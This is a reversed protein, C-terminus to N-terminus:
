EAAYKEPNDDFHKKCGGSCFYYIQGQYESKYKTTKPDVEMGCVLDIEEGAEEIEFGKMNTFTQNIQNM